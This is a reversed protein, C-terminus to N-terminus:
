VNSLTLPKTGIREGQTPQNATREARASEIGRALDVVCEVDQGVWLLPLGIVQSASRRHNPRPAQHAIAPDRTNERHFPCGLFHAAQPNRKKEEEKKQPENECFFCMCVRLSRIAISSPSGQLKEKTSNRTTCAQSFADGQLDRGRFTPPPQCAESHLSAALCSWVLRLFAQALKIQPRAPSASNSNLPSRMM